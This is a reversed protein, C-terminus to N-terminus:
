RWIILDRQFTPLFKCCKCSDFNAAAAHTACRLSKRLACCWIRPFFLQRRVETQALTTKATAENDKQAEWLSEKPYTAAASYSADTSADKGDIDQWDAASAGTPKSESNNHNGVNM